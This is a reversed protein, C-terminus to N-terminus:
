VEPSIKKKFSQLFLLNCFDHWLRLRIKCHWSRRKKKKKKKCCYKYLYLRHNRIFVLWPLTIWLPLPASFPLFPAPLLLSIFSDSTFFLSSIPFMTFPWTKIRKWKQSLGFVCQTCISDAPVSLSGCHETTNHQMTNPPISNCQARNHTSTWIYYRPEMIVTWHLAILFVSTCLLWFPTFACTGACVCAGRVVLYDAAATELSCNTRLFFLRQWSSASIIFCAM